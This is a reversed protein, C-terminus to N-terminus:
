LRYQDKNVVNIMPEGCKLHEANIRVMEMARGTYLPSSASTHPTIICNQLDWLPSNSPLPEPDVADLACGSIQGTQLAWILAYTDVTSGRGVNIFYS